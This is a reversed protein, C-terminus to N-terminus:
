KTKNDGAVPKSDIEDLDRYYRSTTRTVRYNRAAERDEREQRQAPTEDVPARRPRNRIM